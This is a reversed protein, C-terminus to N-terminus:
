ASHSAVETVCSGHAIVVFCAKMFTHVIARLIARQCTSLWHSANHLSQGIVMPVLWEFDWQNVNLSDGVSGIIKSSNTSGPHLLCVWAVSRVPISPAILFTDEPACSGVGVLVGITTSLWDLCMSECLPEMIEVLEPLLECARAKDAVPVTRFAHLISDDTPASVKPPM